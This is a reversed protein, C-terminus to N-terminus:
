SRRLGCMVAARFANGEAQAAAIADDHPKLAQSVDIDLTDALEDLQQQIDELVQDTDDAFSEKVTEEASASAQEDALRSKGAQKKEADRLASVEANRENIDLVDINIRDQDPNISEDLAPSQNEAGTAESGRAMRRLDSQPKGKKQWLLHPNHNMNYFLRGNRDQGVTVGVLVSKGDIEVDAEFRHFYEFGDSREKYSESRGKYEGRKIIDPIAPILQAKLQDGKLGHKLKKWGRGTLQVEGLGERHVTQGQLNEQYYTRATPIIESDPLIVEDGKLRSVINGTLMGSLHKEASVVPAVDIQVDDVAQAVAAKALAERDTIRTKRLADSLTGLGSHLGSGMVVGFAVNNLSESIDYDSQEQTAAALVVPEVIAAGVAGELAGVRARVGLRGTATAANALMKGYRAQGVIPIFASAVNLPDIISAALASGLQATGAAFGGPSRALVSQRKLEDRKREILIDLVSERIGDKPIELPAGAEDAKAQATEHDLYNSIHTVPDYDGPTGTMYRGKDAQNLEWMRSLSSTPSELWAKEASAAAVDGTTSTIDELLKNERVRIGRLDM